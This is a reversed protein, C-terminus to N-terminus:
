AAKGSKTAREILALIQEDTLGARAQAVLVPSIAAGAPVQGTRIQAERKEVAARVDPLYQDTKEAYDKALVGAHADNLSQKLGYEILYNVSAVPLKESDFALVTNLKSVKVNFLM